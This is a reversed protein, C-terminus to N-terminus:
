IGFRNNVFSCIILMRKAAGQLGSLRVVVTEHM